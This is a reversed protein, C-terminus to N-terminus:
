KYSYFSIVDEHHVELVWQNTGDVVLMAYGVSWCFADWFKLFTKWDTKVVKQDGYMLYITTSYKISLDHLWERVQQTGGADSWADDTKVYREVFDVQPDRKTYFPVGKLMANVFGSTGSKSKLVSIRCAINDNLPLYEDGIFFGRDKDSLDRWLVFDNEYQNIM